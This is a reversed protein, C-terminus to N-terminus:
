RRCGSGGRRHGFVFSLPRLSVRWPGRGGAAHFDGPAQRDAAAFPEAEWGHWDFGCWFCQRAQPTRVVRGCSPCRNILVSAGHETVVRRCVRRRFVEVGDALAAEAEPDGAIGYRLLIFSAVAHHGAAAKCEALYAWGVRQEFESMLGGHYDWVYRTLEREDDYEVALGGPSFVVSLPRRSV